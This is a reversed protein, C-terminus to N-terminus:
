VQMMQYNHSHITLSGAMFELDTHNIPNNVQTNILRESSNHISQILFSHNFECEPKSFFVTNHLTLWVKKLVDTHTLNSAATQENHLNVNPDM